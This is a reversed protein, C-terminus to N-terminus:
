TKESKGNKKKKEFVVNKILKEDIKKLIIKAKKRLKTNM